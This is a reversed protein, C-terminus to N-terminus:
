PLEKCNKNRQFFGKLPKTINIQVQRNLDFILENLNHNKLSNVFTEHSIFRKTKIIDKWKKFHPVSLGLDKSAIITDFIEHFKESPRVEMQLIFYSEYTKIYSTYVSDILDTNDDTNKSLNLTFLKGWSTYNLNDKVEDLSKKLDEKKNIDFFDQHHAFRNLITRKFNQFDDIELAEFCVLHPMKIGTFMPSSDIKKYDDFARLLRDKEIFPKRELSILEYSDLYKSLYKNGAIFEYIKKKWAKSNLFTFNLSSSEFRRDYIFIDNKSELNNM